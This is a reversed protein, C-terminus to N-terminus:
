GGGGKTCHPSCLAAGVVRAASGVTRLGRHTARGAVGVTGRGARCFQRGVGGLAFAVRQVATFIPVDGRAGGDAGLRCLTVHASHPLRRSLYPPPRAWWGGCRRPGSGTTVGARGERIGARWGSGVTRRSSPEAQGGGSVPDM